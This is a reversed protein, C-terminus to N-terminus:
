LVPHHALRVTLSWGEGTIFCGISVARQVFCGLLYATKSLEMRSNHMAGRSNINMLM